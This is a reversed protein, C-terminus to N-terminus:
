AAATKRPRLYFHIAPTFVLSLVMSSLLGGIVVIALPKLMESGAGIGFALPLMGAVTALATMAIPRLRRRGAQIMAEKPSFGLDRFRHEADLLLIGNKAVIGIVMIMGMRSAVNFTTSTLLLALFGGFTSLLASTLIATPASFTRFEFLLVAFLLLLALLLVMTLDRSSKRDEEYLGGYQIRISSPLHMDRVAKQVAAVGTGMDVGELRATVQVLRQLNERRIETEGPDSTVTALSGLTATHGSASTLLTNTMRDLSSRNEDPFRVRITYARDNLVVPTAAPEGELVASADVAVEELTFGARAAVTPNVQFTVAPGSITNEVGDLVDVVPRSKGIQIKGIADAVRPATDNLLKGDQSFLRIVIPEPQSTLDGIMDQLLQVFEIDAAPETHKIESRVDEIVDDIGRKRDKKLKVTFDGNNAETVAALGLQMGTRRSTNEVEPTSHLIDEIHLLIRNSEALSSGPPTYYDLIFGGEDMEPLFDTGVLSYCVYSLIIIGVSSGALMWPRKVIAQMARTYFGVIRGFFGSLHAEEAALLAAMNPGESPAAASVTEKDKRRVLYQSLTPTWSLALLLSTLLSVTMTVALARFFTGTVGTTSILPLFVVIPTITSGILPVTLEKLAGQIAQLRTQGADRHLVINELVVIADDIVLGVAAALGGLTMLNFSQNTAKLVIFTILLTVPIVLGAVFSTGWDRLFLVLIISSLVIGLLVADRVSSISDHVITSQDYFPELHVGSPLTPALEQILAHVENAVALTNSEPQRNVNLLVAPKGDATVMTYTPAVSPAISSIDGLRIPVGAPSNKVVIQAIQEPTRVQGSVLGLVLQHDHEILGPSDVLNTRRIADLIDPVTIGATLLRAPDPTVQFEPVRGGQIIVTAVGDLRNIRPKLDYTAIEWLKNPPVTDSTLSYGIIPFVAFTMRHTEVKATPPLEAQLRAVVADVRQLTLIMDSNWEFFLDVEASGRSTISTVKQLGPVSNVAEELPRTITVLMQDIPMVGNDVGILIRPFDTSPFVSVPITFALYGGVLALSVILFLIPNSLRHFWPLGAKATASIANSFEPRTEM